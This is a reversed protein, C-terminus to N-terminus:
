RPAKAEERTAVADHVPAPRGSTPTFPSGSRGPLRRRVRAAVADAALLAGPRRDDSAWFAGARPRPPRWLLRRPSGRLAASFDAELWRYHVGVSYEGPVPVAGDVAVAHWAAPLNAGCALALPLCGYFRPNVDILRYGASTRILELEVMGWYGAAALMGGARGALQEDPEVSVALASSGAEPPWTRTAVHQFRAALGGDRGVVLGLSVLPGEVREQVLMPEEPNPLERMVTRLHEGSDFVRTGGLTNRNGAYAPKVACPIPLRPTEALERATVELLTRPSALGADSALAILERKDRLARLATPGAYPLRLKASPSAALLADIAEERGPYVVLPGHVEALERVRSAFGSPNELVDPTLARAATYRSWLGAAGITPGTGLVKLGARGLGRLGAVASRIHLDTVLADMM